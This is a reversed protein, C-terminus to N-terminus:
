LDKHLCHSCLVFSKDELIEFPNTATPEVVVVVFSGSIITQKCLFTQLTKGSYVSILM